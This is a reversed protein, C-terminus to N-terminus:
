QATRSLVERVHRTRVIGEISRGHRFLWHVQWNLFDDDILLAFVAVALSPLDPM